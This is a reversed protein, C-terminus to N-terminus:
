MECLEVTTLLLLRGKKKKKKMKAEGVSVFCTSISVEWEWESPSCKGSMEIILPAVASPQLVRSDESLRRPRTCVTLKTSHARSEHRWHLWFLVVGSRSTGGLFFIAQWSFSSLRWFETRCCATSRWSEPCATGALQGGYTMGKMWNNSRSSQRSQNVTHPNSIVSPVACIWQTQIAASGNVTQIRLWLAASYASNITLALDLHQLLMAQDCHCRLYNLRWAAAEYCDTSLQSNSVAMHARYTNTKSRM